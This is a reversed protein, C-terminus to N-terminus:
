QPQVEFNMSQTAVRGKEKAFNDRVVVQLIYEGPTMKSGLQLRGAGIIHKLDPQGAPDIPVPKGAYVQQGDRFLRMTAELNTKNGESKANM